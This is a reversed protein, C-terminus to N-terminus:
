SSCNEVHNIISKGIIFGLRVPVANGIHTGLKKSSFPEKPNLLHYSKPFTQLLAGERYSIARNQEPHGFRGCGYTHFQTTITPAPEDWSMRGYVASYSNGSYNKHCPSILEEDWDMWTGGPKSQNIRKKNIPTLSPARHLPDKDSITGASIPELKEITDRVTPYRSPLHTKPILDIKGLKSALLVLRKRAQPIGYDPCFVVEWNVNYGLSELDDVFDTFVKHNVINPVNEMSVIEPEVKKILRMFSYLLNRRDDKKRNPNKHTHSSFPQCPACGVLVKITNDPYLNYIVGGPLDTVDRNIFLTRNNKVYSYRCSEDNDVGAYVPIGAKILGHTLGGIGCFIDITALSLSM